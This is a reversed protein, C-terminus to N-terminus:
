NHKLHERQIGPIIDLYHRHNLKYEHNVSMLVKFEFDRYGDMFREIQPKSMFLLKARKSCRINVQFTEEDFYFNRSNIVSGSQLKETVFTSDNIDLFVEIEGTAVIVIFGTRDNVKYITDGREYIIENFSYIIQHFLLPNLDNLFPIKEFINQMFSKYKDSTSFIQKHFKDGLGPYDSTLARLKPKTLRALINYKSSIVTATRKCNFLCSVEGFHDSKTLINDKVHWTNKSYDEIEIFCEGQILFFM